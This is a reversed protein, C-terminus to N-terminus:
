REDQKEKAYEQALKKTKFLKGDVEWYIHKAKGTVLRGSYKYTWVEKRKIEM